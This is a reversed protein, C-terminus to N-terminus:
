HGCPPECSGTMGVEPSDADVSAEVCVTCMCVDLLCEYM